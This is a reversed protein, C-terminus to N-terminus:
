TIQPGPTSLSAVALRRVKTHLKAIYYTHLVHLSFYPDYDYKSNANLALVNVEGVLSSASTSASDTISEKLQIQNKHNFITFILFFIKIECIQM